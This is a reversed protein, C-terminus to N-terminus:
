KSNVYQAEAELEALGREYAAKRIAAMPQWDIEQHAHWEPMAPRCCGLYEGHFMQALMEFIPVLAFANYDLWVDVTVAVVRGGKPDGGVPTWGYLEVSRLCEYSRVNIIKADSLFGQVGSWGSPTKFGLFYLVRRQQTPDNPILFEKFKSTKKELAAIQQAKLM